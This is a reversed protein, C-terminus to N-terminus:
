PVTHRVLANKELKLAGSKDFNTQQKRPLLENGNVEAIFNMEQFIKAGSMETKAIAELSAAGAM